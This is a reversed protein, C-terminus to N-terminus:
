IKEKTKLYKIVEENLKTCTHILQTGDYCEFINKYGKDIIKVKINGQKKFLSLYSILKLHKHNSPQLFNAVINFKLYGSLFTLEYLICGLQSSYFVFEQKAPKTPKSIYDKIFDDLMEITLPKYTFDKIPFNKM